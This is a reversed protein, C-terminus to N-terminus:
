LSMINLLLQMAKKKLSKIIAKTQTEKFDFFHRNNAMKKNIQLFENTTLPFIPPLPHYFPNGM